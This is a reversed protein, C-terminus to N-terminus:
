SVVCSSYSLPHCSQSHDTMRFPSPVLTEFNPALQGMTHGVIVLQFWLPRWALSTVILSRTFQSDSKESVEMVLAQWSILKKMQVWGM